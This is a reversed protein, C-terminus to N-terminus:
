IKNKESNPTTEINMSFSGTLDLGPITRCKAVYSNFVKSDCIPTWTSYGEVENLIFVIM